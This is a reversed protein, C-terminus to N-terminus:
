TNAAAKFLQLRAVPRYCSEVATSLIIGGVDRVSRIRNGLDLLKPVIVEAALIKRYEDIVGELKSQSLHTAQYADHGGHQVAKRAHQCLTSFEKNFQQRFAELTTAVEGKGM